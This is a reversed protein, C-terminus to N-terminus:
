QGLAWRRCQGRRTKKPGGLAGWLKELARWNSFRTKNGGLKSMGARTGFKERFTGHVQAGRPGRPPNPFSYLFPKFCSVVTKPPPSVNKTNGWWFGPCIQGGATGVPPALKTKAWDSGAKKLTTVFNGLLAGGSKGKRRITGGCPQEGRKGATGGGGESFLGGAGGLFGRPLIFLICRVFFFCNKTRTKPPGWEGPPFFQFVGERGCIPPWFEYAL